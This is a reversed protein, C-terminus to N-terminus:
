HTSHRAQAWEVKRIAGPGPARVESMKPRFGCWQKCAMPAAKNEFTTEDAEVDSWKVGSAFNIEKEKM